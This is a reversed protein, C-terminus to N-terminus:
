ERFVCLRLHVRLSPPSAAPPPALRLRRLPRPALLVLLLALALVVGDFLVPPAALLSKASLECPSVPAEDSANADGGDAIAAPQAVLALAHLGAVRQAICVLMVVCVLGLFWGAMRQRKVM